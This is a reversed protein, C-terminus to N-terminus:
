VQQKEKEIGGKKTVKWFVKGELHPMSVPEKRGIREVLSLRELCYFYHQFSSLTMRKEQGALPAHFM